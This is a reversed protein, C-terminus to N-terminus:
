CLFLISCFLLTARARRVLSAVGVSALSWCRCPQKYKELRQGRGMGAAVAEGLGVEDLGSSMKKVRLRLSHRFGPLAVGLREGLWSGTM